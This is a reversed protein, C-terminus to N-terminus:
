SEPRTVQAQLVWFLHAFTKRRVMWRRGVWAPEEYTEPLDLCLKRVEALVEAPVEGDQEEM